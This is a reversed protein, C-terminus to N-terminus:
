FNTHAKLDYEENTIITFISSVDHDIKITNRGDYVYLVGDDTFCDAIFAAKSNDYVALSNILVNNRIVSNKGDVFKNLRANFDELKDFYLLMNNKASYKLGNYYVNEAVVKNDFYVTGTMTSTNYDKVYVYKEGSLYKGQFVGSTVKKVNKLSNDIKASYLTTLQNQTDFDATYHLETGASNLAISVVSQEIKFAKDEVVVSYTIEEGECFVVMVPRDASVSETRYYNEVLAKSSKSGNFYYLSTKGDNNTQTYYAEGSDYVKIIERVNDILKVPKKGINLKFLSGDAVYYVTSLDQSIYKFSDVNSVLKKGTGGSKSIYLDFQYARDGESNKQYLITKGNDSAIFNIVDKDILDSQTKLNHQYLYGKDKIYSVITGDDSIDYILIDSTIKLPKSNLDSINKSYLKYSSGDYNDIYFLRKEDNSLRVFDRYNGFVTNNTNFGETAQEGYGESFDSIFMEDDRFYGFYNAAISPTFIVSVVVAVVILVAVVPIIVKLAGKFGISKKASHSSKKSVVEYGCEDCKKAGTKIEANCNPCNKM